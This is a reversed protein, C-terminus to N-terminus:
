RRERIAVITKSASKAIVNRSAINWGELKVAVRDRTLKSLEFSLERSEGPLLSIFNDSWLVPAIEENSGPKVATAHLFFAVRKGGNSIHIVGGTATPEWEFTACVEAKPMEELDRLDAYSNAPTYFYNSKDWQLDALKKLVVYFNDSLVSGAVDCIELKLFSTFGIQPIWDSKTGLSRAGSPSFAATISDPPVNLSYNHRYLLKGSHDVLREDIRLNRYAKPTSNVVVVRRDDYRYQVHLPENAKRTGSYGGGPVFYYDYLHWIFSPWANSLMWQIVGTSNYKNAGYAEFMAREGDYTMLQAKRSYNDLNEAVGLSVSMASNFIDYQAFKGMGAHYNWNDDIPWRSAKPLTKRMSSASPIAPGPSTEMNFGYAGGFKNNDLYWYEPPVYDYPGSM